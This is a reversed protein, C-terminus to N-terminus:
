REGRPVAQLGYAHVREVSAVVAELRRPKGEFDNIGRIVVWLPVGADLWRLLQNFEASSFIRQVGAKDQFTEHVAKIYKDRQDDTLAPM